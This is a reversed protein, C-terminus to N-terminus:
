ESRIAIMPDLRTARRAPLYSALLAAGALVLAVVAFTAPDSASVEFLMSRLFRSLALALGLGTLVGAAALTAGERVVAWLVDGTGAGLAIRVALERTRRETNYAILSYTGIAGLLLALAGFALLLDAAFRPQAVSDRIRQTMTREGSVPVDPAVEHLAARIAALAAAPGTASTAVVTMDAQPYQAFPVYFTPEPQQTLDNNKATGVVGVTTIWGPWPYHIRSGIPNKGKWYKEATAQDVVAVLPTDHGDAETFARGKILPIGLTRFFGPSVKRNNMVELANPDTTYGDVWMAMISNAKGFPAQNTIAVDSIATSGRLRELLQQYFARQRKAMAPTAVAFAPDSWRAKPPTLDATVIHETRFGPDVALVHAFSKLLLGAGVALVVGLAIEAVVLSGALRRHSLSSGGRNAGEGLSGVLKPRSMRLAPVLGFVLGATLAVVATFALVGASVSVDGLRPTDPPLLGLLARVGGYALALGVLGGLAALFVSETVLQRVIRTRRAGLAARLSLERERTAGRAIV